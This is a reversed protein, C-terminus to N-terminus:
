QTGGIQEQNTTTSGLARMIVAHARDALKPPFLLRGLFSQSWFLASQTRILDLRNITLTINLCKLRTQLAFNPLQFFPFGVLANLGTRSMPKDLYGHGNATISLSAIIFTAALLM